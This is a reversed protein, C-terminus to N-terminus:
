TTGFVRLRLSKQKSLLILFYRQVDQRDQDAMLLFWAAIAYVLVFVLAEALLASYHHRQITVFSHVFLGAASAAAIPIIARMAFIALFIGSNVQLTFNLKRLLIILQPLLVLLLALTIGGMGLKRGLLYGLGFNAAGQCLATFALLRVWGFVFSFLIAIGQVANVLCYLALTDTLLNGAYQQAGVWTVVLDRNFLFVGAALPVTMMLTLRLLRTFANRLKDIANRGHLEYIAPASNEALKYLMYYGTMAPMQSTYFSSAAAAGSTLGALMNASSFYLRNGINQFMAYGGFGLMERLLARDPIGWGPMRDPHLKKFRVRYLITGCAEVVTGALMLGFLGGGALVFLLSAATRGAGLLTGILNVAAMDQSAVLASSYASMPTRVVAWLAIVYLAHRAESAIAPSLHFMKGIFFSFIVVLTAFASNTLLLLTRASTFVNRFRAGDDEVGVAQGLFRELSWSGAVDVLALLGLTQMIAAYAGLTERGAMKLVLPALLIQVLIQSFYQLIATAFGRAARGSRSM